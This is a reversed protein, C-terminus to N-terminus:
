IETKDLQIQLFQPKLFFSTKLFRKGQSFLSLFKYKNSTNIM